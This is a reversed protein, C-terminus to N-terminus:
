ANTELWAACHMMFDKDFTRDAQIYKILHELTEKYLFISVILYHGNGLETEAGNSKLKNWVKLFKENNQKYITGDIIHRMENKFGAFKGFGIKSISEKDIDVLDLCKTNAYVRYLDKFSLSYISLIKAEYAFGELSILKKGIDKPNDM